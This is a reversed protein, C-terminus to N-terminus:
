SDEMTFYEHASIVNHLVEDTRGQQLVNVGFNLLFSLRLVWHGIRYSKAYVTRYVQQAKRHYQRAMKMHTVGVIIGRLCCYRLDCYAYTTTDAACIKVHKPM